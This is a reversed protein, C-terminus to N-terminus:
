GRWDPLTIIATNNGQLLFQIAENIQILTPLMSESKIRLIRWGQEKLKADRKQDHQENHWYWGDYEIAVMTDPFAIDIAYRGVRYNLEGGILQHLALQPKSVPQGNVRNQCQPCGSGYQIISFAQSWRHGHQCEWTTKEAATLPMQGVWKFGREQALHHYDIETKRVKKACYPCSSLGNFSANWEHGKACRWPVKEKSNIVEGGLYIFGHQQALAHYDQLDKRANRACYPCGVGSKISYYPARWVHNNACAWETKTGTPVAEIGRWVLGNLLALSHYDEKTKPTNRACYPCGGKKCSPYTTAWVHGESCQWKTKAKNSSVIPGLWILGRQEALTCYDHPTLRKTM